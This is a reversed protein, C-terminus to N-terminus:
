VVEQPYKKAFMGLAKITFTFKYNPYSIMASKNFVGEIAEQLWEGNAQQRSMIFKIGKKIRVVDPYDAELLGLLAWATQVVLSGSPHEIYEMKECAKNNNKNIVFM